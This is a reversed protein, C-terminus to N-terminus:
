VNAAVVHELNLIVYAGFSCAKLREAVEVSDEANAMGVIAFPVPARFIKVSAAPRYKACESLILAAVSADTEQLDVQLM